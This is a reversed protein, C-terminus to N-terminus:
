SIGGIEEPSSIEPKKISRWLRSHQYTRRLFEIFLFFSGIPIIIYLPGTPIDIFSPKYYHMQFHAWTTQAGFWVIIFCLIAAVFSTIATLGAQTRPGLRNFVLDIKVHKDRTLVWAAALFTHYLLLYRTVDTVWGVGQGFLWRVAVKYTISLMIFILVGGSLYSLWATVRVHLYIGWRLLKRM